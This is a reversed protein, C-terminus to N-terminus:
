WPRHEENHRLWHMQDNLRDLREDLVDRDHPSLYGGNRDQMRHMDHRIDNLRYQVRAAEDRDLSGDDRGRNIRQQLWDIRRGLDWGHGGEDHHPGYGGYGGNPQALAPAAAILLGGAALMAVTSLKM